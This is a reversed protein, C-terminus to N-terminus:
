RKAASALKQTPKSLCCEDQLFSVIELVNQSHLVSVHVSFVLNRESDSDDLTHSTSEGNQNAFDCLDVNVASCSLEGFLLHVLDRVDESLGETLRCTLM